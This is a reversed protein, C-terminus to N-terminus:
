AAHVGDTRLVLGASFAKIGALYVRRQQVLVIRGRDVSLFKQRLRRAGKVVWSKKFSLTLWDVEVWSTACHITLTVLVRMCHHVIRSDRIRNLHAERWIDHHLALVREDLKCVMRM